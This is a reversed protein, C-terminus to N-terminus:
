GGSASRKHLTGSDHVIRLERRNEIIMEPPISLRRRCSAATATCGSEEATIAMVALHMATFQPPGKSMKGGQKHSLKMGIRKAVM